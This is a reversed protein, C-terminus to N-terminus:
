VILVCCGCYVDIDEVWVGDYMEVGFFLVLVEKGVEDFFLYFCVEVDGFWVGIEVGCIDGCVGYVVVVDVM